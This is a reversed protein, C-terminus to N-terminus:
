RFNRLIRRRESSFLVLGYRRVIQGSGQDMLYLSAPSIYQVLPEPLKVTRFKPALPFQQSISQIYQGMEVLKPLEHAPAEALGVLNSKGQVTMAEAPLDRLVFETAREMIAKSTVPHALARCEAMLQVRVRRTVNRTVEMIMNRNFADNSLGSTMNKPCKLKLKQIKLILNGDRSLNGHTCDV